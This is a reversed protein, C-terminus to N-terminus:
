KEFLHKRKKENNHITKMLGAPPNKLGNARYLAVARDTTLMFGTIMKGDKPSRIILVGTNTVCHETPGYQNSAPFVHIIEGVGIEMIINVLRDLRDSSCHQSVNMMM